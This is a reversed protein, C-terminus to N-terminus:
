KKKGPIVADKLNYRDRLAMARMEVRKNEDQLFKYVIERAYEKDILPLLDFISLRVMFSPDNLAWRLYYRANAADAKVAQRFAKKRFAPDKDDKAAQMVFELVDLPLKKFVSLVPRKASRGGKRLAEPLVKQAVASPQKAALKIAEAQLRRDKLKVAVMLVELAEGPALSDIEKLVAKRADKDRGKLDNILSAVRAQSNYDQAASVTPRISYGVLLAAALLLVAPFRGHMLSIM